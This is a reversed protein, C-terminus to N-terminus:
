RKIDLNLINRVAEGANRSPVSLGDAIVGKGDGLVTKEHLEDVLPADLARTIGSPKGGKQM